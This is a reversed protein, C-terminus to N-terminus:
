VFLMILFLIIQFFSFGCVYLGKLVVAKDKLVIIDWIVLSGIGMAIAIPSVLTLCGGGAGTLIAIMMGRRERVVSYIIYLIPIMTYFLVIKGWWIIPNISLGFVAIESFSLKCLVSIMLLLITKNVDKKFVYMGFIYMSLLEIVYVCIPVATRCIFLAHQGSVYSLMTMYYLWPALLRKAGSAYSVIDMNISQVIEPIYRADDDYDYGGFGGYIVMFLHFISVLLIIALQIKCSLNFECAIGKKLFVGKRILSAVYVGSILLLIAVFFIYLKHAPILNQIFLCFPLSIIGWIGLQSFFGIVYRFAHSDMLEGDAKDCLLGGLLYPSIILVYSLSIIGRIINM